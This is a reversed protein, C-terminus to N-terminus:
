RGSILPAVLIDTPAHDDTLLIPSRETFLKTIEANTWPHGSSASDGSRSLFTIYNELSIPQDSAAIIFNSLGSANQIPDLLYIYNFAHKLTYVFSPM